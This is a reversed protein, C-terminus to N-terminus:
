RVRRASIRGYMSPTTAGFFGLIKHYITTTGALSQRYNAICVSDDFVAGLGTLSNQILNDGYNMGTASNGSTQSIGTEWGTSTTSPLIATITTVDWDGATLSINQLDKYTGTAASTVAVSRDVRATIYEGVIGAAANNNTTTGTIGITTPNFSLSGTVSVNSVILSSITTNTITSNTAVVNGWVRVGRDHDNWWGVIQSWDGNYKRDLDPEKKIGRFWDIIM